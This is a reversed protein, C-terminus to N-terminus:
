GCAKLCHSARADASRVFSRRPWATCVEPHSPLKLAVQLSIRDLRATNCQLGGCDALASQL